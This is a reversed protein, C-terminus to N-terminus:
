QGAQELYLERMETARMRTDLPALPDGTIKKLTEAAEKFKSEKAYVMADIQAAYFRWVSKRDQLSALAGHLEAPKGTELRQSTSLVRALDRYSADIGSTAAIEDYIKAAEDPKKQAVYSNAAAFRAIVAHDKGTKDAFAALTDPNGAELMPILEATATMNRSLQYDRWFSLAATAVITFIVAGIIFSRNERWFKELEKRRVDEGIEEMFNSTDSM